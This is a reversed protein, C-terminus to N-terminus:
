FHLLKIVQDHFKRQMMKIHELETCQVGFIQAQRNRNDETNKFVIQILMITSFSILPESKLSQTPQNEQLNGRGFSLVKRM